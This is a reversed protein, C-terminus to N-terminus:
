AAYGYGLSLSLSLSLLSRYLQQVSTFLGSCKDGVAANDMETYRHTEATWATVVEYANAGVYEGVAYAVIDRM